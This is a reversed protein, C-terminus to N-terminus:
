FTGWDNGTGLQETSRGFVDRGEDGWRDAADGGLLDLQEMQRSEPEAFIFGVSGNFGREVQFGVVKVEPAMYPQKKKTELPRVSAAPDSKGECKIINEIEKEM